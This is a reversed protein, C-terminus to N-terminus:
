KSRVIQYLYYNDTNYVMKLSEKNNSALGKQLLYDAPSKMLLSDGVVIGNRGTFLRLARPKFFCIIKDGPVNTSIYNYMKDMEATKAENTDQKSYSYVFKIGRLAMSCVLLALILNYYRHTNAKSLWYIFVAVYYICLPIVPLIYRIGQTTPWILYISFSLVMFVMLFADKKVNIIAGSVICAMLPWRLYFAITPIFFYNAIIGSYYNFSTTIVASNVPKFLSFLNASSHFFFINNLWYFSLFGIYSSLLITISAKPYKHTFYQQADYVLLAMLLFIGTDRISYAFFIIIGLLIRSYLKKSKEMMMLGSMCFFFFPLDSIVNDTLSLMVGQLAIAAVILIPYYKSEFKNKFLSYTIPISAIFFLACMWKMAMLNMGAFIMLGSLLLPFGNPYLYPSIVTDSHDLLFKNQTYLQHLSHHQIAQAQQIYLAFDDGWDHGCHICFAALIFTTLMILGIIAKESPM